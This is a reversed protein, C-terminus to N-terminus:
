QCLKNENIHFVASRGLDYCLNTFLEAFLITQSATQHLHLSNKMKSKLQDKLHLFTLDCNNITVYLIIHHYTSDASTRSYLDRSYSFM